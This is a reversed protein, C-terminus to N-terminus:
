YVCSCFLSLVMELMLTEKKKGEMGWFLFGPRGIQPHTIRKTHRVMLALKQNSHVCSDCLKLTLAWHM